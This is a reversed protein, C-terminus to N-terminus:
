YISFGGSYPDRYEYLVDCGDQGLMVYPSRKNKESEGSAMAM